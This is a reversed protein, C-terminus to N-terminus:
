IQVHKFFGRAPQGYQSAQTGTGNSILIPVELGGMLEMSINSWVTVIMSGVGAATQSV